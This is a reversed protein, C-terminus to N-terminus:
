TSSYKKQKPHGIGIFMLDWHGLNSSKTTSVTSNLLYCHAQKWLLQSHNKMHLTVFKKLYNTQFYQWPNRSLGIDYVVLSKLLFRQTQTWLLSNTKLSILLWNEHGCGNCLNCSKRTPLLRQQSPLLFFLKNEFSIVRSNWAWVWAM